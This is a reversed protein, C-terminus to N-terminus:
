GIKRHAGSHLTFWPVRLDRLTFSVDTLLIGNDQVVDHITHLVERQTPTRFYYLVNRCLVIDFKRQFPFPRAKLNM